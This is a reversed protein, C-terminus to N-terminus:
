SRTGLKQQTADTFPQRRKCNFCDLWNVFKSEWELNTNLGDAQMPTRRKIDAQALRGADNLLDRWRKFFDQVREQEPWPDGPLPAEADSWPYLGQASQKFENSEVTILVKLWESLDKTSTLGDRYAMLSANDVPLGQARLQEILDDVKKQAAANRAM